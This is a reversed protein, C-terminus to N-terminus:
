VIGPQRPSVSQDSLCDRVGRGSGAEGRLASSRSGDDDTERRAFAGSQRRRRRSRPRGRRCPEAPAPRPPSGRRPANVVQRQRDEDEEREGDSNRGGHRQDAQGREGEHFLPDLHARRLHRDRGGGELLGAHELKGAALEFEPPLRVDRKRRPPAPAHLPKRRSGAAPAERDGAAGPRLLLARDTQRERRRGAAREHRVEAPHDLRPPGSVGVENSNPAPKAAHDRVVISEHRRGLNLGRVPVQGPGREGGVVKRLLDPPPDGVGPEDVRGRDLLLGERDPERAPVDRALGLGARSLRRREQDGDKRAEQPGRAPSRRPWPGRHRRGRSSTTSGCRRRPGRAACPGTWERPRRPM